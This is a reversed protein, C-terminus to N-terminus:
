AHASGRFVSGDGTPQLAVIQARPGGLGGLGGQSFLQHQSPWSPSWMTHVWALAGCEMQSRCFLMCVQSVTKACSSSSCFGVFMGSLKGQSASM